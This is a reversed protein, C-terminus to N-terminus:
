RLLEVLERLKLAQQMDGEIKLKGAFFLQQGSAKGEFLAVFDQADLSIICDASGTGETVSVPDRLHLTWQGGGDGHLDFRYSADINAADKPKAEVRQSILDIVERPTAM